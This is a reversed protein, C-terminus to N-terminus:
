FPLVSMFFRGLFGLSSADNMFQNMAGANKYEIHADAVQNSQVVNLNSISVPNIVGSFRIFEENHNLAVQKEGSVLLNGNALVEIVTVAITGTLTESAAGNGSSATKNSSSSNISIPNILATLAAPAGGMAAYNRAVSPTGAVIANASTSGDSAKRSGSTTEVINITLIDGVNRARKDEFLPRENIGAHFIAGDAPVVVVPRVPKATMPQQIRTPPTSISCGAIAVAICFLGCVRSIVDMKKNSWQEAM